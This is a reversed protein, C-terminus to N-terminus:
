KNLKKFGRIETTFSSAPLGAANFLNSTSMNGWSYRVYKPDKVKTSRLTVVDNTVTAKAPFFQKDEGAIEFQSDPNEPDLRLGESNSLHVKLNRGDRQIREFLPAHARVDKGYVEALALNAFRLGVDLKNRPHIDHINGIDSTMIMGTRPLKLVRRQADRVKVGAHGEGYDFPAIQAYLFPLEENWENRWSEILSTFMEEYYDANNTNSEGQYWLIGALKFPAIPHIMANYLSGPTSPGWEVDPLLSAAEKLRPNNEFLNLPMWVEAPTGGWSSNILGVPVGLEEQLKKGFFYAAASFHEMTEPTSSVWSGGLDQQPSAATRHEVTFFRINENEAEAIAEEANTIGAAASWEMNSQGSVLWVEGLLVNRLIIENYGTIRIEQPGRVDPTSLTIEWYANKPTKVKLEETAWSPQIRLEEGPKAWGWIKVGSNRQLVMNDSFISPLSVNAVGEAAPIIMLLLILIKKM